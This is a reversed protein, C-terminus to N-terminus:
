ENKGGYHHISAPHHRLSVIGMWVHLMVLSYINLHILSSLKISVCWHINIHVYYIKPFSMENVYGYKNKIMAHMFKSAPNNSWDHMSGIADSGYCKM